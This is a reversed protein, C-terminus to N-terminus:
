ALRSRQSGAPVLPLSCHGPGRRSDSEISGRTLTTPGLAYTLPAWSASIGSWSAWAGGGPEGGAKPGWSCGPGATPTAPDGRGGGLAQVPARLRGKGRLFGTHPYPMKRQGTMQGASGNLLTHTNPPPPPPELFQTGVPELAHAPPDHIQGHHHIAREKGGGRGEFPWAPSPLEKEKLNM